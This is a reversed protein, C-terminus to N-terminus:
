KQNEKNHPTKVQADQWPPSPFIPKPNDAPRATHHSFKRQPTTADSIDRVSGSGTKITLPLSLQDDM